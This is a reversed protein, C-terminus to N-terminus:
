ETFPELMDEPALTDSGDAFEITYFTTGISANFHKSDQETKVPSIGVVAAYVKSVVNGSEDLKKLYVSDGWTFQM